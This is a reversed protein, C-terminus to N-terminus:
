DLKLPNNTGSYQFHTMWRSSIWKSSSAIASTMWSMYNDQRDGSDSVLLNEDDLQPIERSSFLVVPEGELIYTKKLAQTLVWWHISLSSNPGAPGMSKLSTM